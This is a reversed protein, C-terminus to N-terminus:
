HNDELHLIIMVLGLVLLSVITLTAVLLTLALADRAANNAEGLTLLGLSKVGALWEEGGLLWSFKNESRVRVEVLGVM